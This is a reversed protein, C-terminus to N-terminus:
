VLVGKREVWDWNQCVSHCASRTTAKFVFAWDSWGDKDKVTGM